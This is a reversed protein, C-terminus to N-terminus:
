ISYNDVDIHVKDGNQLLGFIGREAAEPSVHGIYLGRTVDKLQFDIQAERAIALMHLVTNTSEGMAM